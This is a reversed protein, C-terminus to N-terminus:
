RDYNTGCSVIDHKYRDMIGLLQKRVDRARRM